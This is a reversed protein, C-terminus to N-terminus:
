EKFLKVSLFELQCIYQHVQQARVSGPLELEPAWDEQMHLVRRDEQRRPLPKSAGPATTICVADEAVVGCKFVGELASFFCSFDFFM